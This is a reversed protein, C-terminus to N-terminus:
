RSAAPLRARLQFGGDGDPGSVIQGRVSAVRETMGTLGSGTGNPAQHHSGRRPGHDLVQVVIDDLDYTLTVTVAKATSHRITNTLAEQVLRYAVLGVHPTVPRPTGVVALDVTLGAERVSAVLDDLGDLSPQPHWQTGTEDRLAYLTSRLDALSERGTLQVKRVCVQAQDHNNATIMEEAAEAQIVMVSLGHAVVDHMERAIRTREQHAAAARLGDVYLSRYRLYAGLLWLVIVVLAWPLEDRAAAWSRTAPNLLLHAALAATIIVLGTLARVRSPEWRGLSYSSVMVAVTVASAIPPVGEVTWWTVTAVTILVTTLLPRRRRLLLAPGLCTLVLFALWRPGNLHTRLAPTWVDLQALVVVLAAAAIDAARAPRPHEPGNV